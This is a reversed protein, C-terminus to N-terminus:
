TSYRLVASGDSILLFNIASAVIVLEGATAVGSVVTGIVSSIYRIYFERARSVNVHGSPQYTGPYLCFPIMLCGEDEPTKIHMGGYTYTAYQHFFEAPMDNYLYIGHASITIRDITKTAVNATASAQVWTPAVTTTVTGTVPWTHGSTTTGDSTAISGSLTSTSAFTSGSTVLTPLSFTTPTVQTFQRWAYLDTKQLQPRLGVFMCEIPWKLNQLLIENDNLSTTINQQRHVRILTFGIRKIFIKHIEPNVFINNIYLSLQSVNPQALQVNGAQGAGRLQYGVMQSATALTINIFRQGYPIAVSPVSLRPDCNCWFLLPILLTLADAQPKPTQAGNLINVAVQHDDPAGTADSQLTGKLPVQQGMCRDWGLQKNPQVLFKTHMTTADATYQDLPNGNVEFAVKQILREGPYDCWRVTPYNAAVTETNTFVPADLKVYLVMDNFFDGFQPISFQVDSGLQVTGSGANVKNYEYGLAVFPKFHANTFLVHTREIDLLTPTDDSISPDAKRKAKIAELRNRLMQTAMLMRDQKGDNTILQFVGGTAM